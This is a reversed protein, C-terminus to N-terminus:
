PAQSMTAAPGLPAGTLKLRFYRTRTEPFAFTRVKGQRYLQAGPLTVLTQFSMGDNSFLVRGVQIGASGGLTIACAPFPQQFEFQVRAAGDSSAPITLSTTLDDDFLARANLDGANTTVKAHLDVVKTEDDPIRYAVVANDGYFTPDPPM